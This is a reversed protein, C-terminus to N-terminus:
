HKGRARRPDCSRVGDAVEACIEEPPHVRAAVVRAGKADREVTLDIRAFHGGYSWAQAM